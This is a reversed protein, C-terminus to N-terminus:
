NGAAWWKEEEKTPSPDDARNFSSLPTLPNHVFNIYTDDNDPSIM